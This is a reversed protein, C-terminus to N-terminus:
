KTKLRWLRPHENDKVYIGNDERQKLIKRAKKIYAKEKSREEKLRDRPYSM